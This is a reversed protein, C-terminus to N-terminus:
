NSCNGGGGLNNDREKAVSYYGIKIVARRRETVTHRALGYSALLPGIIVQIFGIGRNQGVRSEIDDPKDTLGKEARPNRFFYRSTRPVNSLVVHM